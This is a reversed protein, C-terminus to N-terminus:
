QDNNQDAHAPKREHGRGIGFRRRAGIRIVRDTDHAGPRGIGTGGPFGVGRLLGNAVGFSSFFRADRLPPRQDRRGDLTAAVVPRLL